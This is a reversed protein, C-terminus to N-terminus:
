YLYEKQFEDSQIIKLYNDELEKVNPYLLEPIYAGGFQGYYGKEDVNFKSM